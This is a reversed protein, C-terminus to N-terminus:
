RYLGIYNSASTRYGKKFVPCINAQLWDSPLTGTNLSQTFIVQLVSSIENACHKLIYPSINDPGKAKNADLKSLQRQIGDVSFAIDPMGSIVFGNTLDMNPINSLNEKTFVSEFYNNLADAKQRTDSIHQGDVVLTSINHKDKHKARIYKWFQRRNGNFSSDLMRSFYNNHAM